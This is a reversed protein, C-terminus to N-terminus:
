FVIHVTCYMGYMRVPVTCSTQQEHHGSERRSLARLKSIDVALHQSRSSYTKSLLSIKHCRMKREVITWPWAKSLSRRNHAADRFVVLVHGDSLWSRTPNGSTMAITVVSISDRAYLTVLRISFILTRM